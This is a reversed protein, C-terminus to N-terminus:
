HVGNNGAFDCKGNGLLTTTVHNVQRSTKQNSIDVISLNNVSGRASV